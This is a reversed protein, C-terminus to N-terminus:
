VNESRDALEFSGGGDNARGPLLGVAEDAANRTATNSNTSGSGGFGFSIPRLERWQCAWVGLVTM